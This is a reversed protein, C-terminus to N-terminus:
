SILSLTAFSQFLLHLFQAFVGIAKPQGAPSSRWSQLLLGCVNESHESRAEKQASQSFYVLGMTFKPKVLPLV